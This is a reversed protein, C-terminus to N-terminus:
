CILREPDFTGGTVLIVRDKLDPIDSTTFRVMNFAATPFYANFGEIPQQISDFVLHRFEFLEWIPGWVTGQIKTDSSPARPWYIRNWWVM